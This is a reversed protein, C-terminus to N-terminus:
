NSTINISSLENTAIYSCRFPVLKLLLPSKFVKFFLHDSMSSLIYMLYLICM